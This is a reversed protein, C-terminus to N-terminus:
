RAKKRSLLMDRIAKVTIYGKMLPSGFQRWILLLLWGATFGGTVVGATSGLLLINLLSLDSQTIWAALSTLVIGALAFWLFWFVLVIQGM